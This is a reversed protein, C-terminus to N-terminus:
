NGLRTFVNNKVETIWCLVIAASFVIMSYLSLTNLQNVAISFATISAFELTLLMKHDM